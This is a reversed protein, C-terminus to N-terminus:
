YNIKSEAIINQFKEQVVSSNRGRTVLTNQYDWEHVNKMRAPIFYFKICVLVSGLTLKKLNSEPHPVGTTPPTDAPGGIVSKISRMIMALFNITNMKGLSNRMKMYKEEGASRGEERFMIRTAFCAEHRGCNDYQAHVPTLTSPRPHVQSPHSSSTPQAPVKRIKTVVNM